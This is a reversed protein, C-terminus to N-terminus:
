PTPDPRPADGPPPWALPRLDPEVWGRRAAPTFLTERRYFHLLVSRSALPSALLDRVADALAVGPRGELFDGILVVYARTVSEHYGGTDTNATGHSDNLRRIAARLEEIAAEPGLRRVHWAGVALHAAHTWEAKSLSTARFRVVLDELQGETPWATARSRVEV